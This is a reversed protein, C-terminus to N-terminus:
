AKLGPLRAFSYKLTRNGFASSSNGTGDDLGFYELLTGLLQTHSRGANDLTQGTKVFGGGNGALL